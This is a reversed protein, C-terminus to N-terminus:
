PSLLADRQRARQIKCWIQASVLVVLFLLTEAFHAHFNDDRFLRQRSTPKPHLIQVVTDAAECAHVHTLCCCLVVACLSVFRMKGRPINRSYASVVM